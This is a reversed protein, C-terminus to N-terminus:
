RLQNRELATPSIRDWAEGRAEPLQSAIKSTEQSTSADGEMGAKVKRHRERHTYSYLEWNERKILVGTM